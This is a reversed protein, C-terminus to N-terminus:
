DQFTLLALGGAVPVPVPVRCSDRPIAAREARNSKVLPAEMEGAEGWRGEGQLICEFQGFVVVFGLLEAARGMEEEGRTGYEPCQSSLRMEQHCLAPCPPQLSQPLRAAARRLEPSHPRLGASLPSAPGKFPRAEPREPGGRTPPTAQLPRRSRPQSQARHLTRTGAQPATWPLFCRTLVWSSYRKARTVKGESGPSLLCGNLSM